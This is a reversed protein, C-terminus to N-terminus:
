LWPTEGRERNKRVASYRSKRLFEESNNAHLMHRVISTNFSTRRKPSHPVIPLGALFEPYRQNGAARSPDLNQAATSEPTGVSPAGASALTLGAAFTVM